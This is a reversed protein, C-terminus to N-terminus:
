DVTLYIAQPTPDLLVVLPAAELVPAGRVRVWLGDRRQVVGVEAAAGPPAVARVLFPRLEAPVGIERGAYHSASGPSIQVYPEDGLEDAAEARRALALPHVLWAPLTIAGDDAPPAATLWPHTARPPPTEDGCGAVLLVTVVACGIRGWSRAM